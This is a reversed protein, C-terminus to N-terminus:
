QQISSSMSRSVDGTVTHEVSEGLVAHQRVEDGIQTRDTHRGIFQLDEEMGRSRVDFHPLFRAGRRFM